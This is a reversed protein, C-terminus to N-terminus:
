KRGGSKILGLCFVGGLITWFLNWGSFGEQVFGTIGFSLAAVSAAIVVLNIALMVLALIGVGAGIASGVGINRATNKRATQSTRAHLQSATTRSM